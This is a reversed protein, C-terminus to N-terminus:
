PFILLRCRQRHLICPIQHHKSYSVCIQLYDSIHRSHIRRLGLNGGILGDIRIRDPPM